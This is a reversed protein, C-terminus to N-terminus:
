CLDWAKVVQSPYKLTYNNQGFMYIDLLYLKGPKLGEIHEEIVAKWPGAGQFYRCVIRETELRADPNLCSNQHKRILRLDLNEEVNRMYICYKNSERTGLWSVTASSCTRVDSSARLRTDSPLSPFPLSDPTNTALLKILGPSRNSARLRILYRNDAKKPLQFIHAGEFSQSVVTKGRITIQLHTKHLCSHIFLWSQGRSSVPHFRLFRIGKNKLLVHTMEEAELKSIRSKERVNTEAFAGIYANSTRAERNKAFVDFYYNTGPRLGSITVQTRNGVCVSQGDAAGAKLVSPAWLGEFAKEATINNDKLDKLNKMLSQVENMTEDTHKKSVKELKTIETGWHDKTHHNHKRSKEQLSAETACLTKFNHLRNVFVCYEFHSGLRFSGPSPKWALTIKTQEASIVDVRPDPPLGPFPTNHEQSTSTFVQFSTDMEVSLLELRYLGVLGNATFYSEEGNGKYSFLQMHPKRSHVQPIKHSDQHLTNDSHHRKATQPIGLFALNWYLPSECPIVRVTLPTHSKNVVFYYRAPKDKALFGTMQGESPLFFFDKLMEARELAASFKSDQRLLHQSTLTVHLILCLLLTWLRSSKM